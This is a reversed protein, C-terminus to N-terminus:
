RRPEWSPHGEPLNTRRALSRFVSKMIL